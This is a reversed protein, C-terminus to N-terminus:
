RRPLLGPIKDPAQISLGCGAPCRYVKVQPLVEKVVPFAIYVLAPVVNADLHLRHAEGDLEAACSM